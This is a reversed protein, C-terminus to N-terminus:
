QIYNGNSDQKFGIAKCWDKSDDQNYCKIKNYDSVRSDATTELVYRTNTPRREALIYQGDLGYIFNKTAPGCQAAFHCNEAVEGQIEVNATDFLSPNGQMCENKMGRELFCLAQQDRLSKLMMIAESARSKEVAKEYQPLAVAALIGIILVVVLLEILTFGRQKQASYGAYLCQPTVLAPTFGHATATTGNSTMGSATETIMPIGSGVSDGQVQKLTEPDEVLSTILYPKKENKRRGVVETSSGSIFEPIGKKTLGGRAALGDPIVKIKLSELSKQIVNKM